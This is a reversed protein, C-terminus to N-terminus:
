ARAHTTEMIVSDRDRQVVRQQSGNWHLRQETRQKQKDAYCVSVM